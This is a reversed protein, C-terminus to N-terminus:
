LSGHAETQKLFSLFNLSACIFFLVNADSCILKMPYIDRKWTTTKLSHIRYVYYRLDSVHYASLSQIIFVLDQRGYCSISLSCSHIILMSVTKRISSIILKRLIVDIRPYTKGRYASQLDVNKLQYKSISICSCPPPSPPRLARLHYETPAKCFSCIANTENRKLAWLINEATFVM